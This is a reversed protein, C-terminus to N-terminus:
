MQYDICLEWRSSDVVKLSGRRNVVTEKRKRMGQMRRAKMSVDGAAIADMDM